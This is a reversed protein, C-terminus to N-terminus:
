TLWQQTPTTSRSNVPDWTSIIPNQRSITRTDMLPESPKSNKSPRRPNENPERPGRRDLFMENIWGQISRCTTVLDKVLFSYVWLGKKVRRMWEQTGMYMRIVMLWIIVM